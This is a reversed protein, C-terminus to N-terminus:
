DGTGHGRRAAEGVALWGLFAHTYENLKEQGTVDAFSVEANQEVFHWALSAALEVAREYESESIAGVEPGSGDRLKREGGRRLSAYKKM